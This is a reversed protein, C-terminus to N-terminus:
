LEERLMGKFQQVIEELVEGRSITADEQGKEV